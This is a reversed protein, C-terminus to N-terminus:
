FEKSSEFGARVVVTGDGLKPSFKSTVDPDKFEIGVIKDTFGSLNFHFRAVVDMIKSGACLGCIHDHGDCDRCATFSGCSSCVWVRKWPGPRIDVRNWWEKVDGWKGSVWSKAVDPVPVNYLGWAILSIKFLVFLRRM